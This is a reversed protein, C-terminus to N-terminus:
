LIEKLIAARMNTVFSPISHRSHVFEIAKQATANRESDHRMWYEIAATFKKIDAEDTGDGMVEGVFTGFREVMNDRDFSSVILTGYSLSELWSM